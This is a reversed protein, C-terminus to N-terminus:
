NAFTQVVEIVIRLCHFSRSLLFNVKGRSAKVDHSLLFPTQNVFSMFLYEGLEVIPGCIVRVSDRLRSSCYRARENASVTRLRVIGGIVRRKDDYTNIM